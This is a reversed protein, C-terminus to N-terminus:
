KCTPIFDNKTFHLSCVKKFQTVDNGIKLAKIWAIRRDIVEDEGFKNKIVVFSSNAPPFTYFRVTNNKSSKSNCGYVSCFTKNKNERPPFEM